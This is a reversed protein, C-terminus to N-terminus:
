LIVDNKQFIKYFIVLNNKENKEFNKYKKPFYSLNKM